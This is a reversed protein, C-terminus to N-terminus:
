WRAFDMTTTHEVNYFSSLLSYQMLKGIIRGESHWQIVRLCKAKLREEMERLVEEKVAQIIYAWSTICPKTPICM